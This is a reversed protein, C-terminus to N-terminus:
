ELVVGGAVGDDGGDNREDGGVGDANPGTHLEGLRLMMVNARQQASSLVGALDLEAERALVAVHRVSRRTFRYVTEAEGNPRINKYKINVRRCIGDSSVECSDVIGLKWTLGGVESKDKIFVVVDGEEVNPRGASWKAPKPILDGLKEAM